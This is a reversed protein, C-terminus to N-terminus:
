AIPVPQVDYAVYLPHRPTSDQNLKLAYLPVEADRFIQLVLRDGGFRAAKPGWGGIHLDCTPILSRIWCENFPGIPDAAACAKASNTERIAGCNVVVLGGAGGRGARTCCRAVTPDSEQETATSPNLLVMMWFPRAPNWIRWLAYRYLGCNSLVCGAISGDLGHRIRPECNM